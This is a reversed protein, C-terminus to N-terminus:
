LVKLRCFTRQIREFTWDPSIHRYYDKLPLQVALKTWMGKSKRITTLIDQLKTIDFDKYGFDEVADSVLVSFTRALHYSRASVEPEIKSLLELAWDLFSINANSSWVKQKRKLENKIFPQADAMFAMADGETDSNYEAWLGNAGVLGLNDDALQITVAINRFFFDRSESPVTDLPFNKEHKFLRVMYQAIRYAASYGDADRTVKSCRSTDKPVLYVAGVLPNGIALATKPPANLFPALAADWDGASPFVGTMEEWSSGPSVLQNALEVLTEVSVSTRTAERLGTQLLDYVSQKTDSRATLVTQISANVAAADRSIVEDSSESALLLSQLLSSGQSTSLFDKLILPDQRVIQRLGQLAYPAEHALSLSRAMYSLVVDITEPALISAPSQLIRHFVNWEAAGGLADRVNSMIYDQLASDGSALNFSQPLKSSTLLLELAKTKMPIDPGNLIAKLAGTWAEAFLPLAYLSYLIDILHPSSPSLILRPVDSIVFEMLENSLESDALVLDRDSNLFEAVAGAAGYPKGNRNSTVALAERVVSTSAKGFISRLQSSNDQELAQRQLKVLRSAKQVVSDQSKDYDKSQESALTKIDNVLQQVFDPWHADVINFMPGLVIAKAILRTSNQPVNWDSTNPSPRLHQTIMPLISELLLKTQDEELLRACLSKAVELYADYASALNIRSEDRRALGDHMASLLKTAHAVETPLFDIPVAHILSTVRDWFQRPGAQSGKKLFQRLRRDASTKSKYEDTWVAPHAATLLVLTDLYDLSSGTQDSDLASSLYAKTITQLHTEVAQPQKELCIRLFRHTARRVSPDTHSALQWLRKDALLAHYDAHHKSLEDPQLNSLLSALLSICASAVRSYKAQADDPSVTRDDSLTQPTETDIARTCYHLIPQHYARRINQIKEPTNFVHRLSNQTADVVSRDADYLGCLWAAVSRPMHRAFRKGAAAALQGQLAHANSRVLRANDISARPYM